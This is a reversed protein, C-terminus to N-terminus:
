FSAMLFANGNVQVQGPLSGMTTCVQNQISVNEYGLGSPVLSSCTGVLTSFENGM